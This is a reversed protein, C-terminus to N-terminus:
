SRSVSGSRTRMNRSNAGLATSESQSSVTAPWRTCTIRRSLRLPPTSSNLVVTTSEASPLMAPSSPPEGPADVATGIM